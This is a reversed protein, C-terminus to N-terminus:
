RVRRRRRRPHAVPRLADTWRNPRGQILDTILMGAITGHTMGMGSDGTAIYVNDADLPIAASSRSATRRRWSRARGASNWRARPPFHERMWAELAAFREETDHRRRRDQPGRRRRHASRGARRQRRRTPTRPASCACTTIRITRTGTSRRRSRVRGSARASRRLHPVAGAQHPDRLPRQGARQHRRRGGRATIHRGSPRRSTAGHQRRDVKM